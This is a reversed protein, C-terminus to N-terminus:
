IDNLFETTWGMYREFVWGPFDNLADHGECYYRDLLSEFNVRFFECVGNFCSAEFPAFEKRWRVYATDLVLFNRAM